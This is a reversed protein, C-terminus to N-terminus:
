GISCVPWGHIIIRLIPGCDGLAYFVGGAPTTLSTAMRMTINIPANKCDMVQISVFRLAFIPVEGREALDAVQVNLSLDLKMLIIEKGVCWPHTPM